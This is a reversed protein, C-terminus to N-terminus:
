GYSLKRNVNSERWNIGAQGFNLCKDRYVDYTLDLDVVCFHLAFRQLTNSDIFSGGNSDYAFLCAVGKNPSFHTGVNIPKIRDIPEIELSPELVCTSLICTETLKEVDKLDDITIKM